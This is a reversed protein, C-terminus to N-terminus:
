RLFILLFLPLLLLLSPPPPLSLKLVLSLYKVGTYNAWKNWLLPCFFPRKAHACGHLLLITYASGCTKFVPEAVGMALTLRDNVKIRALV